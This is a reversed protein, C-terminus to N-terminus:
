RRIPPRPPEVQDPNTLLAHTGHSITHRTTENGATISSCSSSTSSTSALAPRRRCGDRRAADHHRRPPEGTSGRGAPERVRVDRASRPELVPPARVRLPRGAGHVYEGATDPDTNGLMADGLEIIKQRDAVPTGMIDCLVWMPTEMSVGAVFDFEEQEFARDLIEEGARPHPRRVRPDGAAHLGQQRDVAPPHPVAPRRRADVHTGRDARPHPGDALQRRPCELVDRLGELDVRRGRAPHVVLVRPRGPEDQWFVPAERRLLAFWEHPTGAAWRDLDTLDIDALSPETTTVM